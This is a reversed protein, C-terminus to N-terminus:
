DGSGWKEGGKKEEGNDHNGDGSASCRALAKVGCPSMERVCTDAWGRM